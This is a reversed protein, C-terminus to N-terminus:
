SDAIIFPNNTVGLRHKISMLTLVDISSSLLADVLRADDIYIAGADHISEDDPEVSVIGSEIYTEDKLPKDDEIEWTHHDERKRGSRSFTALDLDCEVHM